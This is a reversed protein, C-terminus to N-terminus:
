GGPYCSHYPRRNEEGSRWRLTFAYSKNNNGNSTSEPLLNLYSANIDTTATASWWVGRTGQTYLYGDGYYFFGSWVYSLPYRRSFSFPLLELKVFVKRVTQQRFM